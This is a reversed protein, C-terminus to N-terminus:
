RKISLYTYYIKALEHAGRTQKNRNLSEQKQKELTESDTYKESLENTEEKSLVIKEIESIAEVKLDDLITTMKQNAPSFQSHKEKLREVLLEIRELITKNDWKEEESANMKMVFDLEGILILACKQM